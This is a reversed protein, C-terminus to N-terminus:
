GSQPIHKGYDTKAPIQKACSPDFNNGLIRKLYKNIFYGSRDTGGVFVGHFQYRGDKEGPALANAPISHERLESPWNGISWAFGGRFQWQIYGENGCKECRYYYVLIRPRNATLVEDSVDVKKYVHRNTTTTTTRRVQGTKYIHGDNLVGDSNVTFEEGTYRYRKVAGCKPCARSENQGVEATRIVWRYDKRDGSKGMYGTIFMVAVFGAAMLFYGLLASPMTGFIQIVIFQLAIGGVIGGIIRKIM